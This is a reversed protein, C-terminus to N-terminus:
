TLYAALAFSREKTREAAEMNALLPALSGGQNEAATEKVAAFGKDCPLVSKGFVNSADATM